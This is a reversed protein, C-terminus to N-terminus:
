SATSSLLSRLSALSKEVFPTVSLHMRHLSKIYSM